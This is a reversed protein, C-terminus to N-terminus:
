NDTSGLNWQEAISVLGEFSCCGRWEVRDDYDNNM